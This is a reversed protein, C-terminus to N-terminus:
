RGGFAIRAFWPLRKLLHAIGISVFVAIAWYVVYLVTSCHSLCCELGVVHFVTPLFTLVM